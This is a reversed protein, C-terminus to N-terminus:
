FILSINIKVWEFKIWKKEMISRCWEMMSQGIPSNKDFIAFYEEKETWILQYTEDVDHLFKWHENKLAVYNRKIM